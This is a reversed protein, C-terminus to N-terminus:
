PMPRIQAASSVLPAAYTRVSDLLADAMQRYHFSKTKIDPHFPLSPNTASETEVINTSGQLQQFRRMWAILGFRRSFRPMEQPGPDGYLESNSCASIPDIPDNCRNTVPSVINIVAQWRLPRSRCCSSQLLLKRTKRNRLPVSEHLVFLGDV